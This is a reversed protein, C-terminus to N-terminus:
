SIDLDLEFQGNVQLHSGKKISSIDEDVPLDLDVELWPLEELIIIEGSSEKVAGRLSYCVSKLHHIEFSNNDMVKYDGYRLFSVKGQIAVGATLNAWVNENAILRCILRQGEVLLEVEGEYQNESWRKTGYILLQM